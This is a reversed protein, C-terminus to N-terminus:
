RMLELSNSGVVSGDSGIMVHSSTILAGDDMVPLTLDATKTAISDSCFLPREQADRLGEICYLKTDLHFEYYHYAKDPTDALSGVLLSSGALLATWM